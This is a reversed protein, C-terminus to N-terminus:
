DFIIHDVINKDTFGGKISTLEESTLIEFSEM